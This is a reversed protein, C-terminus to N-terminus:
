TRDAGASVNSAGSASQGVNVSTPGGGSYRSSRPILRVPVEDAVERADAAMASGLEVANDPEGFEGNLAAESM